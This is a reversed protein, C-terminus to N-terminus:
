FFISTIIHVQSSGSSVVGEIEELAVGWDVRVNVNTKFAFEIGIGAGVLTRDSEFVLRDSNITRGVDVFGRFVLDWDTSGFPQQPVIRFPANFLEAPNEEFGFARPLWAIAAPANDYKMTPIISM